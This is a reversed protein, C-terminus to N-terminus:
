GFTRNAVSKATRLSVSTLDAFIAIRRAASYKPHCATMVLHECTQACSRTKQWRKLMTRREAETRQSAGVKIISWDTPLIIETRAVTYTFVGYPMDLTIEDGPRIKDVNLFPAGHTTRHGAIAVPLGSGPFGTQSYIGPGKLLQPVGAGKVVFRNMNISPIHLTAVASGNGVSKAFRHASGRTVVPDLSDADHLQAPYQRAEGALQKGLDIQDRANAVGTLPEGWMMTVIVFVLLGIGTTSLGTGLLRIVDPYTPTSRRMAGSYITAHPTGLCAHDTKM